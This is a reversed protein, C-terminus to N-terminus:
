KIGVKKGTATTVKKELHRRFIAHVCVYVCICKLYIYM